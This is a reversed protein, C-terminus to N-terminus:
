RPTESLTQLQQMVESHASPSWAGQWRAILKGESDTLLVYADDTNAANFSAFGKWASVQSDVVLTRAHLHEPMGNRLARTVMGRIPRPADLLIVQYVDVTDSEGHEPWLRRGWLETQERSGSTFGVILINAPAILGDPLLLESGALNRATTTPVRDDALAAVSVFGLAILLRWAPM